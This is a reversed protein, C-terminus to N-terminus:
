EAAEEIEMYRFSYSGSASTDTDYYSTIQFKYYASETKIIYIAYNSWLTHGGNVGYDGWGYGSNEDGYAKYAYTIDVNAVWPYYPASSAAIGDLTTTYAANNIAMADEAISISLSILNNEDCPLMIDWADEATVVALTEFDIYVAGDCNSAEVMLSEENAFTEEESSHSAAGFTISDLGFANQVLETVRFKTYTSDSDVIFYTEDDATVTHNSFNYIYWDSIADEGVDSHFESEDPISVDMAIFADLETSPTANIFREVIPEGEEDYFDSTNGTFYLSVPTDSFRNISVSSRKFSIDWDQNTESEEETIDVVSETDLDYFVAVPEQVSGTSLNTEEIVGEATTSNNSDDNNDSGGCASLMAVATLSLLLKYNMM